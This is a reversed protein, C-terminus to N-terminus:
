FILDENMDLPLLYFLLFNNETFHALFNSILYNIPQILFEYQCFTDMFVCFVCMFPWNYNKEVKIYTKFHCFFALPM